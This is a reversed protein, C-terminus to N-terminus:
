AVVGGVLEDTGITTACRVILGVHVVVIAIAGAAAERDRGVITIRAYRNIAYDVVQRVVGFAVERALGVRDIIGVGFVDVVMAVSQSFDVLAIGAVHQCFM